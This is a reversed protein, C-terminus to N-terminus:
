LEDHTSNVKLLPLFVNKVYQLSHKLEKHNKIMLQIGEKRNMKSMKILIDSTDKM